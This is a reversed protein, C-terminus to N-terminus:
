ALRKNLYFILVFILHANMDFRKSDLLSCIILYIYIMLLATCYCFDVNPPYFTQFYYLLIHKCFNNVSKSSLNSALNPFHGLENDIGNFFYCVAFVRIKYLIYVFWYLMRLNKRNKSRLIVM